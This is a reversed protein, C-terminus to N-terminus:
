IRETHGSTSSPPVTTQGPGGARCIPLSTKGAEGWRKDLAVWDVILDEQSAAAQDQLEYLQRQADLVNLLDILGRDYRVMALRVAQDSSAVAAQLRGFRDQEAVFRGLSDDVEQIALQVTKRYNLLAGRTRWDQLQKAAALRGFDFVPWQVDPGLSYIFRNNGPVDFRLGQAQFGAAGTLTIRPFFEAVAVGIRATEAALQREAQRIDPRHRLLDAPETLAVTAPPAPIAVPRALEAYLAQPDGGLLTAIQRQDAAIEATLPALASRAVELQRQALAVDYENGLKLNLRHRVLDLTRQQPM